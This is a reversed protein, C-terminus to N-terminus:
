NDSYESQPLIDFIDDLLNHFQDENSYEYKFIDENKYYHYGKRNESYEFKYEKDRVELNFPKYKTKSVLWLNLEGGSIHIEVWFSYYTMDFECYDGRNIFRMGVTFEFEECIREFISSKFEQSNEVSVDKSQWEQQGNMFNNNTSNM